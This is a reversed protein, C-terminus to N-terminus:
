SHAVIHATWNIKTMLSSLSEQIKGRFHEAAQEEDDDLRLTGRLFDVDKDSDLEELGALRQL